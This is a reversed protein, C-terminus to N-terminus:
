SLRRRKGERHKGVKGKAIKRNTTKRKSTKWWVWGTHQHGANSAALIGAALISTQRKSLVYYKVSDNERHDSSNNTSSYFRSSQLM